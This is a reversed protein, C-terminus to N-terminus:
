ETDTEGDFVKMIQVNFWIFNLQDVVSEFLMPVYAIVTVPVIVLNAPM